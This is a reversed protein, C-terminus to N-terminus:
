IRKWAAPRLLSPPPVCVSTKINNLSRMHVSGVLIRCSPHSPCPWINTKSPTTKEKEKARRRLRMATHIESLLAWNEM